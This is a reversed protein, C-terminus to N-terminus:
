DSAVFDGLTAKESKGRMHSSSEENKQQTLKIQLTKELKNTLTISPITKEEEVRVLYPEKESIMEALVKVPLQMRDRAERIKKGYGEVLEAEEESAKKSKTLVKPGGTKKMEVERYLIKKGKSCSGCVRMEVSEVSVIYVDKMERGCLECEEV